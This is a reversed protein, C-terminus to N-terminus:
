LGPGDDLATTVDVFPFKPEYTNTAPDVTQGFLLPFESAGECARAACQHGAGSEIGSRHDSGGCLQGVAFPQVLERQCPEGAPEADASRRQVLVDVPQVIQAGPDAGVADRLHGHDQRLGRGPPRSPVRQLGHGVGIPLEGVGVGADVGRHLARGLFGLALRARDAREQEFGIPM